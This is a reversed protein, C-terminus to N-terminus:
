CRDVIVLGHRKDSLMDSSFHRHYIIFNRNTRTTIENHKRFENFECKAPFHMEVAVFQILNKNKDEKEREGQRSVTACPLAVDNTDPPEDIYPDVSSRCAMSTRRKFRSSPSARSWTCLRDLWNDVLTLVICVRKVRIEHAM